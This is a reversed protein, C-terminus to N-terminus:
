TDGPQNLYRLDGERRTFDARDLYECLPVAYKRSTQLIDRIDSMALGKGDAMVTALQDRLKRDADVHLYYEGSVQVLDGNVAALAILEPVSSQLRPAAETLQKVSPTELGAQQYRSVLDGLLNQENRSLRPGRGKLGITREELVIREQSSFRQLMARVLADNGVYEFRSLFRDREFRTRLPEAEHMKNLASEMRDWFRDLARVHIRETRSPSVPIEWLTGAEVLQDLLSVDHLGTRWPLQGATLEKLGTVFCAAAARELPDDSDLLQVQELVEDDITRLKSASPDLITGGGITMIPSETRVVFPQGWVSVAPERLYFQVLGEQGRELRDQNLLKM